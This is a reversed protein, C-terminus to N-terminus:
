LKGGARSDNRRFAGPRGSGRGRRGRGGTRRISAGSCEPCASPRGGGFPTEWRHGCNGCEFMRAGRLSVCGGGLRLAKGKVLAEAVKRRALQVIRAFTQRSVAMKAAADDQYMGELDALRLAELEDLGLTVEELSSLPVGQPKFYICEPEFAVRRWRPPRGMATGGEMEIIPMHEYNDVANKRKEVPNRM